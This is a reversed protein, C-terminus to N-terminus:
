LLQIGGLCGDPRENLGSLVEEIQDDSVKKEDGAANEASDEFVFTEFYTTTERVTKTCGDLYEQFLYEDM